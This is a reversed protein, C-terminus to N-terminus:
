NKLVEFHGLDAVIYNGTKIDIMVNDKHLDAWGIKYKEKLYLLANIFSKVEEPAQLKKFQEKNFNKYSFRSVNSVDSNSNQLNKDDSFKFYGSRMSEIKEAIFKITTDLFWKKIDSIGTSLDTEPKFFTQLVKHKNKDFYLDDSLLENFISDAFAYSSGHEYKLRSFKQKNKKMIELLFTKLAAIEDEKFVKSKPIKNNKEFEIFFQNPHDIYKQYILDQKLFGLGEYLVQTETPNMKRVFDMIFIYFEGHETLKLKKVEYLRVFHKSVDPPMSSRIREINTRIYFEKKNRNDTANAIKAAYRKGRKDVVEFVAGFAGFGLLSNFKPIYDNRLNAPVSNHVRAAMERAWEAAPGSTKLNPRMVPVYGMRLIEAFGPTNKIDEDTISKRLMAFQEAATNVDLKAEKLIKLKIM